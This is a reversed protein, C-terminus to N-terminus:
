EKVMNEEFELKEKIMSALSFLKGTSIDEYWDDIVRKIIYKHYLERVAKLFASGEFRKQWDLEYDGTVEIALRGEQLKLKEGNKVVDVDKIDWSRIWVKIKYKFYENYKTDGEMEVELEGPKWKYNKEVLHFKGNEYWNRISKILESFEFLGKFKLVRPPLNGKTPM